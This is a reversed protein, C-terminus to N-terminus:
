PFLLNLEKDSLNEQGADSIQVVQAGIILRVQDGLGLYRGLSPDKELIQFYADSYRKIEIDFKDEQIDGQIWNGNTQFFGQSGVQTTIRDMTAKKVTSVAYKDIVPREAQVVINKSQRFAGMGTQEQSKKDINEKLAGHLEAPAMRLYVEAEYRSDGEILFSTYETVIGYKKSLEVVEKVLEDDTGHLRM